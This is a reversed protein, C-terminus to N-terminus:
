NMSRCTKSNVYMSLVKLSFVPFLTELASIMLQLFHDLFQLKTKETLKNNLSDVWDSAFEAMM